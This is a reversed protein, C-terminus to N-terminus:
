EHRLAIMPDVRMARRAPIYGAALAVLVLVAAFELIVAADISVIGFVLSSMARNIALSVPLGIALGIVTLKMAHGLVLKRVDRPAAGLAVRIGIERTRQAVSESLVGYVGIASLALAVAGFVGMLIGMIRIIGIADTVERQLTHVGALAISPDLRRLTDRVPSVYGAPNASTRLILVMGRVPSQLMPQYIAPQAPSDWWNQRVDDVVGVITLWRSASDPGGLRIHQGVANGGTFFQAALSRSVVAVPAGANDDEDSFTRGSILAVHLARFYDPTAIQLSASPTEGPPPAPRGEIVFPAQDSDVNSAPPNQVLAAATVGPLSATDRLLQQYLNAIKRVDTYSNAPLVPELEMVSGPSFGGYINALRMFGQITLGACVLLVLAFMLQVVVLISRIRGRARTMSGAGGEKLTQNLHVRGAHLVTALGFLIGVVAALLITFALVAGDVRIGGWGPVWKTWDPSISTRLLRVTGFSVLIAVAGAILSFLVTESIFLQALRRRGAGLASRLAIEKQRGVMRAFLLNALNACALLLVFGAATQLLSFLPLTYQYLERRLQLLTTRRGTNTSPYEAALRASFGALAGRAQAVSVGPKLRGIAWISLHSRDSNDTPSLALPVWLQMPVPFDFDAPMIGVITYTRGNLQVTKGIANPDGGFQRRWFGYGVVAVSDAGPQDETPMFSRGLAPAVGLLDFFNASIGCGNVPRVDSASTLSFTHCRYTALSQFINAGAALDAADGPALARSDFGPDSGNDQWVLVLQDLDRFNYPHLLLADVMSFIATNAGIGLALTLVAVVTFGLNKVLVRAGHRFDQLLTDLLHVGRAETCEEWVQSVGGFERLAAYRAESPGMGRAINEAIQRDLHFRLEADLERDVASRRFLSRVRLALTTFCRM